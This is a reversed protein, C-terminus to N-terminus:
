SRGGAPHNAGRTHALALAESARQKLRLEVAAWEARVEALGLEHAGDRAIVVLDVGAPLLQPMLRFCERCVRKVRNRRVASGVRRAVVM